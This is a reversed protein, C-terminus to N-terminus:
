SYKLLVAIRDQETMAKPIGWGALIENHKTTGFTRHHQNTLLDSLLREPTIPDPAENRPRNNNEKTVLRALMHTEASTLTLNLETM